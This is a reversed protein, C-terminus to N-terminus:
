NRRLRFASLDTVKRRAISDEAIDTFQRLEEDSISHIITQLDLVVMQLLRVTRELSYQRALNIESNLRGMLAVIDANSERHM